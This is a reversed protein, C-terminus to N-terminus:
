DLRAKGADPRVLAREDEDLPEASRFQAELVELDAESADNPLAARKLVRQRLTDRDVDLDLIAFPVGQQRAFRRAEDRQSRRLFSADLVVPMRAQLVPLALECLRAYTAATAEPTYLGAGLASGSREQARLGFLRKREVDGRIRVAGASEVLAQAATSKGSGSFGHTITLSAETPQSCRRAQALYRRALALAAISSSGSGRAQARQLAAVKARVLARHVQYYGLVRVGDFDGGRELVAAVLRHALDPRDHCWLDMTMFALDSITDIWRFEDNFEIGDFLTTRGDILVVNGLHLDGHCERVHGAQRRQEFVPELRDFEVAEWACLVELAQQDGGGPLLRGLDSLNELMPARVQAPMGFRTHAEAVAARGHLSCLLGALEDIHSPLLDGRALVHDWVGDQSFARMHVAWDIPESAGGLVPADPTGAIPLVGLYLGPAARRNLRLEEECHHRRAALTTDDLFGPNVAKKLKYASGGAVLVFSIHTEFLQVEDGANGVAPTPLALQRRLAAVMRLQDALTIERMAAASQTSAPDSMTPEISDAGLRM